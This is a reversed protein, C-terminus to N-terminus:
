GAILILFVIVAVVILFLGAGSGGGSSGSSRSVARDIEGACRGCCGQHHFIEVEPVTRKCRWCQKWEDVRGSDCRSGISRSVADALVAPFDFAEDCDPCQQVIM